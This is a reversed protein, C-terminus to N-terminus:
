SKRPSFSELYWSCLTNTDLRCQSLSVDTRDLTIPTMGVADEYALFQALPLASGIVSEGSFSEGVLSCRNFCIIQVEVSVLCSNCAFLFSPFFSPPPPPSKTQLLYEQERKFAQQCLFEQYINEKRHIAQYVIFAFKGLKHPQRKPLCKGIDTDRSFYFVTSHTLLCPLCSSNGYRAMKCSNCNQQSNVFQKRDRIEKQKFELCM